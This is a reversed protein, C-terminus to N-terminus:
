RVRRNGSRRTFILVAVVAQHAAEDMNPAPTISELQAQTRFSKAGVGEFIRPLRPFNTKFGLKTRSSSSSSCFKEVSCDMSITAREAPYSIRSKEDNIIGSIDSVCKRCTCFTQLVTFRIMNLRDIGKSLEILWVLWDM